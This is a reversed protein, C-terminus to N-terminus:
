YTLVDVTRGDADLLRIIDHSNRWLEANSNLYIRWSDGAFSARSRNRAVCGNYSLAEAVFYQCSSPLNSPINNLPAECLPITQLYDFCIEGYSKLNDPTLPLQSSPSPCSSPLPPTFSQLQGLYGTCINERFSVGVPSVGSNVLASQGPALQIPSLNNVTGMLFPSAGQQIYPRVGTYASQLSWGAIGIPATNELAAEAEIHEAILVEGAGGEAM